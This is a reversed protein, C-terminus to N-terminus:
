SFGMNRNVPGITGGDVFGAKTLSQRRDEKGNAVNAAWSVVRRLVPRIDYSLHAITPQCWVFTPDPAACFMSVDRPVLVGRQALYQYAAVFVFAEDVILASPPSLRFLQELVRHFGENSGDWEPLHYPGTRIGHAEMEELMAAEIDGPGGERREPRVLMVIRRHGHEILRRVAAISAPLHNPGAGAIPVKRRRGFLAFTPLPQAAFWELVNRSGSCVIWADAETEAVLRSIRRVNMDLELLSKATFFPAHGAEELLHKLEIHKFEPQEYTFIALRLPNGPGRGAPAEIRNRRRPGQGQLRGERQLLTVAARVTKPSVGLTRALQKAGPMSGGLGGRQIEERLHHALQEVASLCHFPKM